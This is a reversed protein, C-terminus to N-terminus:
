RGNFRRICSAAAAPRMRRRAAAHAAPVALRTFLGAELSAAPAGRGRQRGRRTRARLRRDGRLLRDKEMKVTFAEPRGGNAAVAWLTASRGSRRGTPRSAGDKAPFDRTVIFRIARRVFSIPSIASRWCRSATRRRARGEPRRPVGAGERGVPRKGARGRPAVGAEEQGGGAARRAPVAALRVRTLKKAPVPQRRRETTSRCATAPSSGSRIARPLLWAPGPALTFVTTPGQETLHVLRNNERNEPGELGGTIEGAVYWLDGRWVAASEAHVNELRVRGTASRRRVSLPQSLWLRLLSRCRWSRWRPWPRGPHLIEEAGGAIQIGAAAPRGATSGIEEM